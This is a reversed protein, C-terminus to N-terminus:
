PQSTKVRHMSWTRWWRLWDRTTLLKAIVPRRAQEDRFTEMTIHGDLLAAAVTYQFSIKGELGTQPAGRDANPLDLSLPGHRTAQHLLRIPRYILM